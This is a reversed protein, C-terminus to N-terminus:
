SDEHGEQLGTRLARTIADKDGLLRSAESSRLAAITAPDFEDLDELEEFLWDIIEDLLPRVPESDPQATSM